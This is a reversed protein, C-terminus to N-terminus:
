QPHEITASGVDHDYIDVGSEAAAMNGAQNGPAHALCTQGCGFRGKHSDRPRAPLNPVTNIKELTM